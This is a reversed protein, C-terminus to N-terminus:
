ESDKSFSVDLKIEGIKVARVSQVFNPWYLTWEIYNCMDEALETLCTAIVPRLDDISSVNTAPKKLLGWGLWKEDPIPRINSLIRQIETRDSEVWLAAFSKDTVTRLEKWEKVLKQVRKIADDLLLKILPHREQQPFTGCRLSKELATVFSTKGNEARIWSDMIIGFFLTPIYSGLTYPRLNNQGALPRDKYVYENLRGPVEPQNGFKGEFHGLARHLEYKLYDDIWMVNWRFNSFPPLDLIAGDSLVLAAGSIVSEFRKSGMASVCDYYKEMVQLDFMGDAELISFKNEDLEGDQDYSIGEEIYQPFLSDDLIKIANNTSILAPFMRTAFATNYENITWEQKKSPVEYSGSVMYSYILHDKSLLECRKPID